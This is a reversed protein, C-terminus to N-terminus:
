ANTHFLEKIMQIAEKRRELNVPLNHFGSTAHLWVENLKEDLDSHLSEKSVPTNSLFDNLKEIDKALPIRIADNDQNKAYLTGMWTQAIRLISKVENNIPTNIPELWWIPNCENEGDWWVKKGGWDPVCFRLEIAYNTKYFYPLDNTPLEDKCYVKQFYEGKVKVQESEIFGKGGCLPCCGGINRQAPVPNNCCDGTKTPRRCCEPYTEFEDISGTGNCEPCEKNTVQESPASEYAALAEKATLYIFDNYKEFDNCHENACKKVEKLAEYLRKTIDTEM